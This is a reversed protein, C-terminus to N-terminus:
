AAKQRIERQAEQILATNVEIDDSDMGGFLKETNEIAQELLHKREYREHLDHAITGPTQYDSLHEPANSM